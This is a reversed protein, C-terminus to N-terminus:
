NFLDRFDKTIPPANRQRGRIIPVLIERCAHHTTARLFEFDLILLEPKVALRIKAGGDTIGNKSELVLPLLSAM